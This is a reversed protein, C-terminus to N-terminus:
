QPSPEILSPMEGLSINLKMERGKRWLETEVLDGAKKSTVAVRLDRPTKLERGGLKLLVDGPELGGLEAPSGTEVGRVVLGFEGKYGIQRALSSGPSFLVVQVGMWGRSVRQGKMLSPLVERILNSPIALGIGHSGGTKSVIASNIGVLEGRSSVLAGGSNGMNIAADTQIFDEYPNLGIGSRNVASVIGRTVTNGMGFPNGVAMVFDGVRLEDSDGFPLPKFDKGDVKLVAVDSRAESGTVAAEFMRGDSLLVQIEEAGTVVHYASAIYGDETVFVGSGLSQSKRAQPRVRGSFFHRFFPDNMLPNRVTVTRSTFVNVVAPTVARALKSIAEDTQRLVATDNLDIVPTQSPSFDTKSPAGKPAIRRTETPAPGLRAQLWMHIVLAGAIFGVLVSAITRFLQPRRPRSETTATM